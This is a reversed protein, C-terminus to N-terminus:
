KNYYDSVETLEVIERNKEDYIEIVINKEKLSYRNKKELIRKLLLMTLMSKADKEQIDLNDYGLIIISEYTELDFKGDSCENQYIKYDTTEANKVNEQGFSAKLEKEIEEDMKAIIHVESDSSIYEYLESVIKYIRKNYGLILTKSRPLLTDEMSSKWQFNENKLIEFDFESIGDDSQLLILEDGEEIICGINEENHFCFDM